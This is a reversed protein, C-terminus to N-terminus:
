RAGAWVRRELWSVLLSSPICVTAFFLGAITLASFYHFTTSGVQYAHSIIEPVSIAFCLSTAQFLMISLATLTPVAIRLGQPLLIYRYTDVDSLGLAHAAEKQGSPVADLAARIVESTYAGCNWGLAVIASAFAGLSMNVSPLGFYIFQLLVLLPAGRGLEVLIFAPVRVMLSRAKVGLAFALGLPLGVLLAAVTLKLSVTFAAWFGPLWSWIVDWTVGTLLADMLSIGKIAIACGRSEGDM